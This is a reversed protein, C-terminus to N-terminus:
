LKGHRDELDREIMKNIRAQRYNVVIVIACAVCGLFMSIAGLLDHILPLNTFISNIFGLVFTGVGIMLSSVSEKVHDIM